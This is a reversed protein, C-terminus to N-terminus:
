QGPHRRGLGPTVVVVTTDAMGAIEVEVQGVGVTEVLIRQIGVAALVRIAQPTALTFGGPPGPDGDFPHVGRPRAHPGADPHPRRPHRWGLLALVPRDGARRRDGRRGPGGRDGSGGLDVQGLGSRGDRWRGARRWRSLCLDARGGSSRSEGQEVLSLLRGIAGRDGTRAAELLETPPRHRGGHPARLPEPSMAPGTHRRVCRTAREGGEGWRATPERRMRDWTSTSSTTSRVDASTATSVRLGGPLSRGMSSTTRLESSRQCGVQVPISGAGPRNDSM